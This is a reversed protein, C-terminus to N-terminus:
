DEQSPGDDQGQQPGGEGGWRGKRHGRHGKGGKRGRRSSKITARQEPTLASLLELRAEFRARDVAQKIAESKDYEALIAAKDLTEAKWLAKMAQRSAKMEERSGQLEAKLEGRVEVLLAVQSENLSLKEAVKEVPAKMLYGGHGGGRRGHGGPRAQAAAATLGITLAALTATRTINIRKM